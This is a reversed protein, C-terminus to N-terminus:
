NDSEQLLANLVYSSYLRAEDTLGLHQSALFLIEKISGFLFVEKDNLRHKEGIMCLNDYVVYNFRDDRVHEDLKDAFYNLVDKIEPSLPKKEAKKQALEEYEFIRQVLFRNKMRFVSRNLQRKFESLFVAPIVQSHRLFCEALFYGAFEKRKGGTLMNALGICLEIFIKQAKDVNWETVNERITYETLNMLRNETESITSNIEEVESLFDKEDIESVETFVRGIHKSLKVNITLMLKTLVESKIYCSTTKAILLKRKEDFWYFFNNSNALQRLEERCNKVLCIAIEEYDDQVEIQFFSHSKKDSNRKARVIGELQINLQGSKTTNIWEEVARKVITPIQNEYVTEPILYGDNPIKGLILKILYLKLAAVLESKPTNSDLQEFFSSNRKVDYFGEDDQIASSKTTFLSFGVCFFLKLSYTTSHLDFLLTGTFILDFVHTYYLSNKFVKFQFNAPLVIYIEGNGTKVNVKLEDPRRDIILYHESGNIQKTSAYVATPFLKLIKESQNV